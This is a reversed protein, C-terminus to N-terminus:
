SNLQTLANKALGQEFPTYYSARQISTLLYRVNPSKTKTIGICSVVWQFVQREKDAWPGIQRRTNLENLFKYLLDVAEDSKVAALTNLTLMIEDYDPSNNVFNNNYSKELNTYVSNNAVGYQRITDIAAKRMDRLKEQMAKDPTTYNWGTALAVAAVNAKSSGPAKTKLMQNMAELKISPNISVDQIIGSIFDGPDAMINPLANSAIQKVAPDYSGVSAFFVPRYGSIDQFTELASICGIVATQYRRRTEANRFTQTNYDSLRRVIQPIYNRGNVEGLAILAAQMANGENTGKVVDYANIAYWLETAAATYKEAGLGQSIIILSQEAAERESTSRVDPTRVLLFKLAEHYFAGTGGTDRVAELVTLREAFSGDPRMYERTYYSMDQAFITMGFFCLFLVIFIRKMTNIYCFNIYNPVDKILFKM